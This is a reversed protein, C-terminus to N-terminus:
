TQFVISVHGYRSVCADNQYVDYGENKYVEIMELEIVVM